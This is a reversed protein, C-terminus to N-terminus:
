RYFKSSLIYEMTNNHMLIGPEYVKKNSNTIQPHAQVPPHKHIMECQICPENHKHVEAPFPDMTEDVDWPM